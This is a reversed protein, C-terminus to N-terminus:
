KNKKREEKLAVQLRYIEKTKSAHQALSFAIVFCSSILAIFIAVMTGFDILM